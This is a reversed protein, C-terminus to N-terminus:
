PALETKFQRNSEPTHFACALVSASMYQLDNALGGKAGNYLFTDGNQPQLGINLKGFRGALSPLPNGKDQSLLLM